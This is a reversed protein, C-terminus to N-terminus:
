NGIGRDDGNSYITLDSFWADCNTKDGTGLRFEDAYLTSSDSYHGDNIYTGDVYIDIYTNYRGYAIHHWENHKNAM